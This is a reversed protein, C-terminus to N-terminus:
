IDVTNIEGKNNIIFIPNRNNVDNRMMKDINDVM